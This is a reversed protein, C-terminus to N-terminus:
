RNQLPQCNPFFALAAIKSMQGRTADSNPRFYPRDMPAVCPEFPGGCPYGQIIGRAAMREIYLYFTSAPPADAFTQGTPTETWGAAGSTIKSLQGRTVNNNPRFYPRDLPAVCPEFPGGCPYGSIIGRTSLREIWWHFTSGPAVDAFTQQTSPVLDAFGASESVIKSVQGRTVNNNPRYYLGPCPEGPGGCPYGGVIGRCALCRITSYFTSGPPVDNFAVTCATATATALPTATDPPTRSAIPATPTSIATPLTTVTGTVTRTPTHSPTATGTPPSTPTHTPTPTRTATHTPTPTFTSTHTPTPTATPNGVVHVIGDIYLAPNSVPLNNDDNIQSNRNIPAPPSFQWHLVADGPTTGCFSVRAVRFDSGAPVPAGFTGSAYTLEGTGNNTVNQLTVPFFSLDPSVTTAAVCGSQATDVVQLLTNTFTLYSQQAIVANTGDNIKLDLTFKTGVTVTIEGPVLHAFADLATPHDGSAIPLAGAVDGALRPDSVAGPHLVTPPAGLVRAGAPLLAAALLSVLITAALVLTFPASRGRPTGLM